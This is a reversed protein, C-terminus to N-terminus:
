APVDIVSGFKRVLKKLFEAEQPSLDSTVGLHRFGREYRQLMEFPSLERWQMDFWSLSELFPLEKPPIPVGDDATPLSMLALTASFRAVGLDDKVAYRVLINTDVATM